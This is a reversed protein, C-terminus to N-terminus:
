IGQTELLCLYNTLIRSVVAIFNIMEHRDHDNEYGIM